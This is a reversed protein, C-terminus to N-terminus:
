AARSGGALQLPEFLEGFDHRVGAVEAGDLLIGRLIRGGIRRKDELRGLHRFVFVDQVLGDGFAALGPAAALLKQTIDIM